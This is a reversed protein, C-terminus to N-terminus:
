DGSRHRSRHEGRALAITDVFAWFFWPILGFVVVSGAAEGVVQVVTPGTVNFLAAMLSASLSWVLSCGLNVTASRRQRRGAARRATLRMVGFAVVVVIVAAAYPYWPWSPTRPDPDIWLPGNILGVLTLWTPLHIMWWRVQDSEM